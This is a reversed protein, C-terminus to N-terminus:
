ILRYDVLKEIPPLSVKMRKEKQFPTLVLAEHGDDILAMMIRNSLELSIRLVKWLSEDDPSMGIDKNDYWRDRRFFRFWTSEDVKIIESEYITSLIQPDTSSDHGGSCIDYKPGFYVLNNFPAIQWTKLGALLLEQDSEGVFIRDWGGLEKINYSPHNTEPQVAPLADYQVPDLPPYEPALGSHQRHDYQYVSLNTPYRYRELWPSRPPSPPENGSVGTSTAMVTYKTDTTEASLHYRLM